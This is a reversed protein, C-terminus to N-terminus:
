NLKIFLMYLVSYDITKNIMQETFYKRYRLYVCLEYVCLGDISSNEHTEKNKLKNKEIEKIYEKM